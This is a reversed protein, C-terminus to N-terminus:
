NRLREIHQVCAKRSRA